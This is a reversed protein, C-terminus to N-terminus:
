DDANQVGGIVDVLQISYSSAELLVEYLSRRSLNITTDFEVHHILTADEETVAVRYKIEDLERRSFEATEIHTVGADHERIPLPIPLSSKSRFGDSEQYEFIARCSVKFPDLTDAAIRTLRSVARAGRQAPQLKEDGTSIFNLGMSRASPENAWHVVAVVGLHRGVVVFRSAFVSDFKGEEDADFTRTMTSTLVSRFEEDCGERVRFDGHVALFACNFRYLNLNM